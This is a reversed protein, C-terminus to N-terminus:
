KAEPAAESSRYVGCSTARWVTDTGELSRDRYVPWGFDRDTHYEERCRGIRYGQLWNFDKWRPMVEVRRYDDLSYVYAGTDSLLGFFVYLLRKEEDFQLNVPRADLDIIRSMYIEKGSYDWFVVANRRQTSLISVARGKQRDIVMRDCTSPRESYKYDPVARAIDIVAPKDLRVRAVAPGGKKQGRLSIVAYNRRQDLVFDVPRANELGPERHIRSMVEDGPVGGCGSLPGGQCSSLYMLVILAAFGALESVSLILRGRGQKLILEMVFAIPVVCILATWVGGDALAKLLLSRHLASLTIVAKGAVSESYVGTSLYFLFACVGAAPILVKAVRMATDGPMYLWQMAAYSFWLVALALATLLLPRVGYIEAPHYFDACAFAVALVLM